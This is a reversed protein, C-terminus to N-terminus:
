FFLRRVAWIAAVIFPNLGTAAKAIEKIEESLQEGYHQKAASASFGGVLSILVHMLLWLALYDTFTNLHLM